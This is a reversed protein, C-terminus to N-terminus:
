APTLGAAPAADDDRKVKAGRRRLAGGLGALAVLALALSGPEPVAAGGAGGGGPLGALGAEFYISSNGDIKMNDKGGGFLRGNINANSVEIKANMALLVGQFASFPDTTSGGTEIKVNKTTSVNWLVGDGTLGNTLRIANKFGIDHNFSTSTFNFVAVENNGVLTTVSGFAQDVDQVTFVRYVTGNVEHSIGDAVNITQNTKLLSIATGTLGNLSSSLSSLAALNTTVASVDENITFTQSTKNDVKGAKSGGFDISGGLSLTEELKIRGGIGGSPGTVPGAIGIKEEIKTNKLQVEKGSINSYLISYNAADGLPLSTAGAAPAFAVLAVWVAACASLLPTRARPRNPLSKSQNM